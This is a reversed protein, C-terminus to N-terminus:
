FGIQLGDHVAPNYAVPEWANIEDDQAAVQAPTLRVAVKLSDEAAQPDGQQAALTYWYYSKQADRLDEPLLDSTPDYLYGLNYMSDIVGYNAARTFWDLALKFNQGDVNPDIALTGLRHMAPANGSLAAETFWKKANYLNQDIGEGSFYMEGLKYQGPVSGYIAAERIVAFAAAEDNPTQASELMRKGREYLTLGDPAATQVPKDSAQADGHENDGAKANQGDSHGADSQEETAPPPGDADDGNLGFFLIGAAVMAAVLMGLLAIMPLGFKRNQGDEGSFEDDIDPLDHVEKMPGDDGPFAPTESDEPQAAEPQTARERALREKRAKAAALIKERPSMKEPDTEPANENFVADFEDDPDMEDKIPATEPLAPIGRDAMEDDVLPAKAMAETLPDPDPALTDDGFPTSESETDPWGELKALIDDYSKQLQAVTEEAERTMKTLSGNAVSEELSPITEDRLAAVDAAVDAIGEASRREADEIKESLASVMKEVAAIQDGSRKIENGLLQLKKGTREVFEADSSHAAEKAELMVSKATRETHDLHANVAEISDQVEQFGAEIRTDLSDVRSQLQSVAQENQEIRTLSDRRTADFQDVMQSLAKELAKLSELREREQPAVDTTVAPAAKKEAEVRKLREFVTELGQNLGGVVERSKEENRKLNEETSKLRENLRNLSDVVARLQETNVGTAQKEDSDLAPAGDGEAGVEKIMSTMWEGLTMGAKRAAEKAVVRAEPDIGKVSWPVNSKM